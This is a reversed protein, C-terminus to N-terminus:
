SRLAKYDCRRTIATGLELRPINDVAEVIPGLTHVGIEGRGDLAVEGLM